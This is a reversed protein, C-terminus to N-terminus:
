QNLSYVLRGFLGQPKDEIWEGSAAQSAFQGNALRRIRTLSGDPNRVHVEDGQASVRAKFRDGIKEFELITKAIKEEYEPSVASAEKGAKVGNKYLANYFRQFLGVFDTADKMDALHQTIGFSLEGTLNKSSITGDKFSQINSGTIRFTNVFNMLANRRVEDKSLEAFSFPAPKGLQEAFLHQLYPDNIIQEFRPAIEDGHARKNLYLSAPYRYFEELAAKAAKPPLSIVHKTFEDQLEEVETQALGVRQLRLAIYRLILEHYNTTHKAGHADLASIFDPYKMDSNLIALEKLLGLSKTEFSRKAVHMQQEVGKQIRAIHDEIIRKQEETFTRPQELMLKLRRAVSKEYLLLEAPHFKNDHGFAGRLENEATEVPYDVKHLDHEMANNRDLHPFEKKIAEFFERSNINYGRWYAPDGPWGTNQDMRVPEKEEAILFREIGERLLGSYPIVRFGLSKHFDELGPVLAVANKSLKVPGLHATDQAHFNIAGPLIERTPILIGYPMTEWEGAVHNPVLHGLATHLMINKQWKGTIERGPHLVGDKPFKETAHIAYTNDLFARAVDELPEQCSNGFVPRNLTVLVLLLVSRLFLVLASMTEEGM